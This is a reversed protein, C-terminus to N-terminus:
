PRAYQYQQQSLVRGQDDRTRLLRGLADYEFTTIRGAPDTQSTIGVLPEYTYATVRAKKLTARLPLLAQGVQADTGPTNSALQDVVARTLVAVVEDYTANQVEALLLSRGYGWLRAVSEGSPRHLEVVNGAEDYRDIVVTPEFRPDPIGGAVQNSYQFASPVLPQTTRLTHETQQRLKNQVLGFGHYAASLITTNGNVSFLTVSEIPTIVHRGALAAPGPASSLYDVPYYHTTVRAATPNLQQRETILRLGQPDYVFYNDQSYADGSKAKYRTECSHTNVAHGLINEYVGLEYFSPILAHAPLQSPFAVALAPVRKEFRAYTNAVRKLVYYSAGERLYDTQQRLLGTMFSSSTPPTFPLVERIYDGYEVPSTYQYVTKGATANPGDSTVTVERYGVLSGQTSGLVTRNQALRLWFPCQYEFKDLPPINTIYNYSRYAYKPEGYIVGSSLRPDDRMTYTFQQRTAVFSGSSAYNRIERVRLGGALKKLISPGRDRYVGLLSVYSCVADPDPNPPLSCAHALVRYRGAPLFKTGTQPPLAPGNNVQAGFYQTWFVRQGTSDLVEAYPKYAAGVAGSHGSFTLYVLAGPIGVNFSEEVDGCQIGNPGPQVLACSNAVSFQKDVMTYHRGNNLSDDDNIYTYENSEYDFETRGGTPFIVATLVGAKANSPSVERDAGPYAVPQGQADPLEMAPILSGYGNNGSSNLNAGNYYGWHDQAKSRVDAPLKPSNYQFQHPPKLQGNRGEEQVSQLTLRGTPNNPFYALNFANVAKGASRVRVHALSRLNSNYHGSLGLTDSRLGGSDFLVQTQGSSTSISSLRLSQFELQSLSSNITGAQDLNCEYGPGLGVKISESARLGYSIQYPAYAFSISHEQNLDTISTLYWASTFDLGSRPVCGGSIVSQGRITQATSERDAFIFVTGTETTVKFSVLIGTGTGSAAYRPEILLDKENSVIINGQWDFAFQGSYGNFNFYFLDPEADRCGSSLDNYLLGLSVQSQTSTNMFSAWTPYDRRMNFYNTLASSNPFVDDPRGRVARTIVGGANLTWGLGVWSAVDEVRNGSANYSLSVPVSLGGEKVEVLPVGIQPTGVYYSVPTAAARGLNAAEPSPPTVRLDYPQRIGSQQAHAGNSLLFLILSACGALSYRLLRLPFNQKMFASSRIFSHTFQRTHAQM